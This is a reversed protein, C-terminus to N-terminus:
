AFFIWSACAVPELGIGSNVPSAGHDTERSVGRWSIPWRGAPSAARDLLPGAGPDFQGVGQLAARGSMARRAQPSPIATYGDPFGM